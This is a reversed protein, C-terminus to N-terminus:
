HLMLIARVVALLLALAMRITVSYSYTQLIGRKGAEIRGDWILRITETSTLCWSLLLARLGDERVFSVFSDYKFSACMEVTLRQAGAGDQNM